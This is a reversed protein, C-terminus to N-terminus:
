GLDIGLSNLLAELDAKSLGKAQDLIIEIEEAAMGKQQLKVRLEEMEEPLEDLTVKEVKPETPKVEALDEARRAEEQEIVERIFGPRESAKMRALDTRFAEIEEAGLGTIEALRDILDNVEPVVAEISPGVVDEDGKVIGSSKIEDNIIAIVMEKRTPVEAASPVDGKLLAKIMKNMIRVLKPVSYIRVYAVLLLAGAILAIGGYITVTQALIQDGTLDSVVNFIQIRSEHDEKLFTITIQFTGGAPTVFFLRYHGNEDTTQLPNYIVEGEQYLVEPIVGTIGADNDLDWYSVEIIFQNGPATNITANAFRLETRVQRVTLELRLPTITYIDTPYLIDIEYFGIPLDDPVQYFYSGNDHVQLITEEIGILNAFGDINSINGLTLDNIVNFFVQSTGNIPVEVSTVGEIHAPTPLVIVNTSMAALNFNIKSLSISLEYLGPLTQNITVTVTYSGNMHDTIVVEGGEWSVDVDADLILASTLAERLTFTFSVSDGTYGSQTVVDVILDTPIPQITVIITKVASAYDTKTGTLRLYITQAALSSTDISISYTGNVEENLQGTLNGMTFTVNAGLISGGYFTDNYMVLLDLTSGFYVNKSSAGDALQISSPIPIVNIDITIELFVFNDAVGRILLEYTGIAFGSVNVEGEFFGPTGNNVLVFPTNNWEMNVSGGIVPSNRATDNLYIWFQQVTELVVDFSSQEAVVQGPAKSVVMTFSRQRTQYYQRSVTILPEFIGFNNDSTDVDFVYSGNGLDTFVDYLTGNWLLTANMGSVYTGYFPEQVGFMVSVIEGWDAYYASQAMVIEVTQAGPQVTVIISATEFFQKEAQVNFPYAQATLGTMNLTISYDGGGLDLIVYNTGYLATWDTTILAGPVPVDHDFDTLTLNVIIPIGVVTSGPAPADALLSTQILKIEVPVDTVSRDAYFPAGSWSLSIDFFVIGTDGFQETPILLRYSGGGLPTVYYTPTTLNVSDVDVTAGDIGLSTIFDVFDMVITINDTYPTDEVLPFFVQTPREVTTALTSTDRPAYFPAGASNDILLQIAHGTVLASPNLVTSNFSIEYYTVYDYLAYEGNSIVTM